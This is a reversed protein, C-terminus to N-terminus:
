HQAISLWNGDPDKFWAVKVGPVPSWIGLADQELGRVREFTIGKAIMAQATTEINAVNWGLVTFNQPVLDKVLSVRLTTGNCDFVAAYDDEHVLTLGLTDGYFKKATARDRASVFAALKANGLM